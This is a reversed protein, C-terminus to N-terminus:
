CHSFSLFFFSAVVVFFASLVTVPATSVPQSVTIIM